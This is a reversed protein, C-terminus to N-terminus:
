KELVKIKLNKIEVKMPPGVHAQIAIIGSDRRKEHDQDNCVSMLHGNIKNSITFDKVTIEYSNWDEVKIKEKLENNDAFRRITKPKHDDEIVSEEGRQALIDRYKEGYVIGSYNNDGDFDAQYGGVRFPKGEKEVWSRFQVGSNGGKTLRYDFKLVFNKFEQNKLILFTNYTLKKSGEAATTGVICGDEVSWIHSDGEWNNLDKGNFLSIFGDKDKELTVDKAQEASFVSSCLFFACLFVSVQKFIRMMTKNKELFPEFASFFLSILREEKRLSLSPLLM